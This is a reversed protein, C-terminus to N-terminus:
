RIPSTLYKEDYFDENERLEDPEVLDYFSTGIIHPYRNDNHKYAKKRFSRLYM